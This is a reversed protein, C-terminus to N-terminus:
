RLKRYHAVLELAQDVSTVTHLQGKWDKHFKLQDPTLARRSPSKDGDKVEVLITTQKNIGVVLDPFGKGMASTDAVSCGVLILATMISRHNSDTRAALRM